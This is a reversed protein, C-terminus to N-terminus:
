KWTNKKVKLVFNRNKNVTVLALLQKLQILLSGSSQISDGVCFLDSMDFYDCIWYNIMTTIM